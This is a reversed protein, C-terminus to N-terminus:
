DRTFDGLIDGGIVRFLIVNKLKGKFQRGGGM